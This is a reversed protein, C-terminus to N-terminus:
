SHVPNFFGNFGKRSVRSFHIWRGLDSSLLIALWSTKSLFRSKKWRFISTQWIQFKGTYTGAVSKAPNPSINRVSHHSWDRDGWWTGGSGFPVFGALSRVQLSLRPKLRGLGFSPTLGLDDQYWTVMLRKDETRETSITWSELIYSFVWQTSFCLCLSEPFVSFFSFHSKKEKAVFVASEQEPSLRLGYQGQRFAEKNSFFFFISKSTGKTKNIQHHSMMTSVPPVFPPTHVQAM